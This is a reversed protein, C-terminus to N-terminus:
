CVEELPKDLEEFLTGRKLGYEPTYTMQWAQEPVYAMALQRGALPRGAKDSCGDSPMFSPNKNNEM